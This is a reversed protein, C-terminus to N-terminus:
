HSAPSAIQVRPSPWSMGHRGQGGFIASLLICGDVALVARPALPPAPHSRVHIPRRAQLLLREPGRVDPRTGARGPPHIIRHMPVPGRGERDPIYSGGDVTIRLPFPGAIPSSLDRGARSGIGDVCCKPSGHRAHEHYSTVRRALNGDLCADLLPPPRLLARQM